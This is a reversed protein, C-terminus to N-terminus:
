NIVCGFLMTQLFHPFIVSEFVYLFRLNEWKEKLKSTRLFGQLLLFSYFVQTYLLCGSAINEIVNQFKEPELALFLAAFAVNNIEIISTFLVETIRKM